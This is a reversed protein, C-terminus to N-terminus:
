KRSGPGLSWKVVSQVSSVSEGSREDTFDATSSGWRFEFQMAGCKGSEM